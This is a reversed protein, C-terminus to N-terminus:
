TSSPTAFEPRRHRLMRTGSVVASEGLYFRALRDVDKSIGIRPTAVIEGARYGDDFLTLPSGTQVLDLGNEGARTIALAQCLRGPGATLLAPKATTAVGRLRAMTALGAVPEAARLLVGGAVGEPECSVNLCYHMGYIFYIYAHGPPGFLVKTRATRGAASHAAPDDQGFYAETESIRCILREGEYVRVLLKGLLARAVLDPADLYFERSLPLAAGNRM